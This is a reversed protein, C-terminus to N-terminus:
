VIIFLLPAGLRLMLAPEGGKGLDIAQIQVDDEEGSPAGMELEGDVPCPHM